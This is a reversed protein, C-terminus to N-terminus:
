SMKWVFGRSLSSPEARLFSTCGRVKVDGSSAATTLNESAIDCASWMHDLLAVAVHQASVPGQVGGVALATPDDSSPPSKTLAVAKDRLTPPGGAGSHWTPM